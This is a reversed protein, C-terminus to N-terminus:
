LGERRREEEENWIGRNIAEVYLHYYHDSLNRHWPRKRGSMARKRLMRIINLLHRDELEKIPIERKDGTRWTDYKVM